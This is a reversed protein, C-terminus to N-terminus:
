AHPMQTSTISSLTVTLRTGQLTCTPTDHTPWDTADASRDCAIETTGATLKYGEDCTFQATSNHNDGDTKTMKGHVPEDVTGACTKPKCEVDTTPWPTDVSPAACAIQATGSLEFGPNCSYTATSGHREDEDSKTVSGNELPQLETCKTPTCRLDTPLSPWPTAQSAADCTLVKTGSIAFGANCTYTAISRDNNGNSQTRSGDQLEPLDTCEFARKYCQMRHDRGGGNGKVDVGCQPHGSCGHRIPSLPPRIHAKNKYYWRCNSIADYHYAICYTDSECKAECVAKTSVTGHPFPLTCAPGCTATCVQCYCYGAGAHM